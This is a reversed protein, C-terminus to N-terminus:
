QLAGAIVQGSGTELSVNRTENGRIWWYAAAIPGPLALVLLAILASSPTGSSAYANTLMLPAVVAGVRGVAVSVGLGTARVRTPLIESSVVYGSIYAWTVGFQIMCYGIVMGPLSSTGYIVLISLTTFTYSVFLSARRGWREVLVSATVGGMLAAANGYMYYLPM